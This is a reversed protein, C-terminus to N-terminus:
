GNQFWKFGDSVVQFWRFGGSVMQFWKFGDSVMQFWRFGNPVVQFWKSGDSVVQVSRVSWRSSMVAPFLMTLEHAMPSYFVQTLQDTPRSAQQNHTSLHSRLETNSTQHENHKINNKNNSLTQRVNLSDFL